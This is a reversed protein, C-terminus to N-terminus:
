AEVGSLSVGPIQHNETLSSDTKKLPIAEKLDVASWYITGCERTYPLVFQIPYTILFLLFCSLPFQSPNLFKPSRLLSSLYSSFVNYSM